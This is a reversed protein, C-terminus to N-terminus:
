GAARAANGAEKLKSELQRIEDRIQAADEYKEERVAM